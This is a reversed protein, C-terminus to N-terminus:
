LRSINRMSSVTNSCNLDVNGQNYTPRPLTQGPKSVDKTKNIQEIQLNIELLRSVKKDESFIIPKGIAGRQGLLECNTTSIITNKLNLNTATLADQTSFWLPNFRFKNPSQIEWYRISGDQHGTVLFTSNGEVQWCLSTAAINLKISSIVKGTTTDSIYITNDGCASAIQTGDNNFAVSTICDHLVLELPNKDYDGLILNLMPDKKTAFKCALSQEYSKIEWLTVTASFFTFFALQKGNPNFVIGGNEGNLETLGRTM